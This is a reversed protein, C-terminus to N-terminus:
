PRGEAPDLGLRALLDACVAADLSRSAVYRVARRRVDGPLALPMSDPVVHSTGIGRGVSVRPRRDLSAARDALTVYRTV